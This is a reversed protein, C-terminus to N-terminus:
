SKLESKQYIKMYKGNDNSIFYFGKYWELKIRGIDPSYFYLISDVDLDKLISTTDFHILKYHNCKFTGAETTVMTDVSVVKIPVTDLRIMNVQTIVQFTEGSIVPYKLYLYFRDNLLSSYNKYYLGDSRNQFIHNYNTLYAKESDLITDKLIIVTDMYSWLYGGNSDFSSDLNIWQNGIKLPMIFPGIGTIKGPETTDDICSALFLVTVIFFVLKKM